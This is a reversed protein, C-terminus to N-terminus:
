RPERREAGRGEVTTVRKEPVVLARVAAPRARRVGRDHVGEQIGAAREDDVDVRRSRGAGVMGVVVRMWDTSMSLATVRERNKGCAEGKGLLSGWRQWRIPNM